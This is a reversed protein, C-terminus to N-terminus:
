TLLFISILTHVLSCWIMIYYFSCYSILHSEHNRLAQLFTFIEMTPLYWQNTWRSKIMMRMLMKKTWLLAGDGRVWVTLIAWFIKSCKGILRTHLTPWSSIVAKWLLWSLVSWRDFRLWHYYDIPHLFFHWVATLLMVYLGKPPNKASIQPALVLNKAYGLYTMAFPAIFNSQLFGDPAQCTIVSWNPKVLNNLENRVQYGPADRPVNSGQLTPCKYYTPGDPKLAWHVYQRIADPSDRFQVGNFQNKVANLIESALKSKWTNMWKYAQYTNTKPTLLCVHTPNNHFGYRKLSSTM